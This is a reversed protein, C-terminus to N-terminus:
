ALRFRPGPGFYVGRHLVSLRAGKAL